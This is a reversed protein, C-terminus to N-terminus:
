LPPHGVLDPTNLVTTYYVVTGDDAGQLPGGFMSVGMMIAIAIVASIWAGSSDEARHRRRRTSNELRLDTM